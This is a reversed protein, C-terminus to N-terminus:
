GVLEHPHYLEVAKTPKEQAAMAITQEVVALLSKFYIKVASFLAYAAGSHLHTHSALVWPPM